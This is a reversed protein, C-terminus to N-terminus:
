ERNGRQLNLEQRVMEHLFLDLAMSFRRNEEITQRRVNVTVVVTPSVSKTKDKTAATKKQM